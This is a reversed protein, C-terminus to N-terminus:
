RLHIVKLIDEDNTPVWDHLNKKFDTSTCMAGFVVHLLGNLRFYSERRDLLTPSEKLCSKIKGLKSMYCYESWKSMLPNKFPDHDAASESTFFTSCKTVKLIFICVSLFSV